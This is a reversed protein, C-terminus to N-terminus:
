QNQTLIGLAYEADVKSALVQYLSNFYNIQATHLDTEASIVELYTKIGAKYQLQIVDYVEKALLINERAAQYNALNGKYASLASAYQSNIRNELLTIELDNRTIQLAASRINAKRKGGELIPIALTLGAYSNPYSVNYLKAFENNFWNLNYWANASVSPLYANKQYSLNYNALKKTTQLQQYEIRKAYDLAQTTDFSIAQEMLVSDQVIQLSSDPAYGMFNKLAELKAILAAEASKKTAITNNLAIQARKYDTKDTVGSQYRYYADDLSKQLRLINEDSVKIQQSTTLIDYFAKSVNSTIDIITAMRAQKASLRVEKKSANALLVDRNFISQTLYFQAASTNTTGIPIPNGNFFSTQRQFYHQLNYNGGIQPYWDALKSQISYDTIREDLQAQRIEPHNAIAYQICQELTFEAPPLKQHDQAFGAQLVLMLFVVLILRM